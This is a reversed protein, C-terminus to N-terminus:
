STYFIEVMDAWFEGPKCTEIPEMLPKVVSWWRKTEPDAAMRNM